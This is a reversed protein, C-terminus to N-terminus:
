KGDTNRRRVYGYGYHGYRSGYRDEDIKRWWSPLKQNLVFGLIPVRSLHLKDLTDAVVKVSLFDQRVVMLCTDCLRAMSVADTFLASPVSDILIYDYHQRLKHLMEKIQKEDFRDAADSFSSHGLLLDIHNRDDHIIVDELSAKGELLRFMGDNSQQGFIKHLAPKRMDGDMLLVKKHNSALAIALNSLVSSKGENELCSTVLITKWGNKECKHELQVRIKKLDEIFRFSTTLQSILITKKRKYGHSYYWKREKSLAGLYPIGLPEMDEKVKVTDNLLGFLAFFVVSLLLGISGFRVVNEKHSNPNIPRDAISINQMLEININGLVLQSLEQYRDLMSVMMYYSTRPSSSTASIRIINTGPLETTEFYGDLTDVNMEEMMEQKFVNSSIIYGFASAIDSIENTDESSAYQEGTKIAFTAESQYQPKYLVTLTIDSVIGVFLTIIVISRWRRIIDALLIQVIELWRDNGSM